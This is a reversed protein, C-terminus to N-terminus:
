LMSSSRSWKTYFCLLFLFLMHAWVPGDLQSISTGFATGAPFGAEGASKRGVQQGATCHTPDRSGSEMMMKEEPGGVESVVRRWEGGM